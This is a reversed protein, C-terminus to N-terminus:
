ELTEPKPANRKIGPAAQTGIGGVEGDTLGAGAHRGVGGGATDPEERAARAPRMDRRGERRRQRQRKKSWPLHSANSTDAAEPLADRFVCTTNKRKNANNQGFSFIGKKANKKTNLHLKQRKSESIEGFHCM